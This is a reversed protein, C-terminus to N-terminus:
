TTMMNPRSPLQPSSKQNKLHSSLVSSMRPSLKEERLGEGRIYTFARKLLHDLIRGTSVDLEKKCIECEVKSQGCSGSSSFRSGSKPCLEWKKIEQRSPWPGTINMCKKVRRIRKEASLMKLIQKCISVPISFGLGILIKEFIGEGLGALIPILFPAIWIIINKTQLGIRSLMPQSRPQPMVMM